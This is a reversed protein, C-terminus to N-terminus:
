VMSRWMHDAPTDHANGWCYRGDGRYQLVSNGPCFLLWQEEEGPPDPRTELCGGLDFEFHSTGVSPNVFINALRQGDLKQAAVDINYFSDESDCEAMDKGSIRWNCCYVWLHWEGRPKVIRQVLRERIM